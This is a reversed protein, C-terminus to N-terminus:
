DKHAFTNNVGIINTKDDAIDMDGKSEFDRTASRLKAEAIKLESIDSLAIRLIPQADFSDKRVCVLHAYFISQDARVMVLDFSQKELSRGEIMMNVFLRDWRERDLPSVFKSFRRNILKSREVGLLVCGTLNIESILTERGLTVYCIPAFEFLDVYRDRSEELDFHSKRLEENQMELEIQHVKLEHLLEHLLEEGPQPDVLKIPKRDLKAEAIKRM